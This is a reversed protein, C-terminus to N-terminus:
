GWMSRVPSFQQWMWCGVNPVTKVHVELQRLNLGFSCCHNSPMGTRTRTLKGDTIISYTAQAQVYSLPHIWSAIDTTLKSSLIIVFAIINVPLAVFGKNTYVKGSDVVQGSLWMADIFNSLLPLHAHLFLYQTFIAHL